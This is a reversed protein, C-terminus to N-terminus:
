HRRKTKDAKNKPMLKAYIKKSLGTMGHIVGNITVQFVPVLMILVGVVTLGVGLYFLGVWFHSFTVALGAILSFAGTIVFAVVIALVSAVAAFSVAGAAIFVAMAVAALPITIPTSLLALVILWITKVDDKPKETKSRSGATSNKISYDALVKRALQRPTGLEAVCDNYSDFHGDQLYEQYFDLVDQRENTDLQALLADLEEIYDNM